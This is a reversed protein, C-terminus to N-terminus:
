GVRPVYFRDWAEERLELLGLIASPIRRFFADAWVTVREAFIEQNKRLLEEVDTKSKEFHFTREDSRFPGPM